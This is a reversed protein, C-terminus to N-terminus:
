SVDSSYTSERDPRKTKRCIPKVCIMRYDTSRWVCIMRYDTSGMCLDDQLMHEGM